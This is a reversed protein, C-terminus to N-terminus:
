KEYNKGVETRYHKLLKLFEANYQWYGDPLYGPEQKLIGEEINGLIMHKVDWGIDPHSLIQVLAGDYNEDDIMLTEGRLRSRTMVMEQLVHVFAEKNKIPIGQDKFVQMLSSKDVFVFTRFLDVRQQRLSRDDKSSLQIDRANQTAKTLLVFANVYQQAQFQQNADGLLRAIDEGIHEQQMPSVYETQITKEIWWLINFKESSSLRATSILEILPVADRERVHRIEGETAKGSAIHQLETITELKEKIPVDPDRFWQMFPSQEEHILYEELAIIAKDVDPLPFAEDGQLILAFRARRETYAADFLLRFAEIYDRERAREKAKDLTKRIDRQISSKQAETLIAESEARVGETCGSFGLLLGILLIHFFCTKRTNKM